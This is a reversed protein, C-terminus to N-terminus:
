NTLRAPPVNISRELMVSLIVRGDDLGRIDQSQISGDNQKINKVFISFHKGIIFM